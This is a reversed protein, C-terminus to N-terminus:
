QLSVGSALVGKVLFEREHWHRDTKSAFALHTPMVADDTEGTCSLPVAAEHESCPRARPSEASTLIAGETREYEIREWHREHVNLRVGQIRGIV